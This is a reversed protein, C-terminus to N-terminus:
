DIIIAALSNYACMHFSKVDGVISPQHFQCFKSLYSFQGIQSLDNSVNVLRFYCRIKKSTTSVAAFLSDCEAM